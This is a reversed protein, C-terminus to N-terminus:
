TQEVAFWADAQPRYVLIAAVLLGVAVLLLAFPSLGVIVAFIQLFAFVVSLTALTRRFRRDGKRVPGALFGVVGGVLLSIVGIGRLLKIFADVDDRKDEAFQERIADASATFALLGFLILLVACVIWLWYAITVNRPRNPVGGSSGPSESSDPSPASRNRM